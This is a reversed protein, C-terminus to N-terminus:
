VGTEQGKGEADGLLDLHDNLAVLEIRAAARKNPQTRASDTIMSTPSTPLNAHTCVVSVDTRDSSSFSSCSKVSGSAVRGCPPHPSRAALRDPARLRVHRNVRRLASQQCRYDLRTRLALQLVRIAVRRRDALASRIGARRTFRSYQLRDGSIRRRTEFRYRSQAWDLLPIM